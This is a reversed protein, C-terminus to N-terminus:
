VCVYLNNWAHHGYLSLWGRRIRIYPVGNTVFSSIALGHVLTPLQVDILRTGLDEGLKRNSAIHDRKYQM